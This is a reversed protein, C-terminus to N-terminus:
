VSERSSQFVKGFHNPPPRQLDAPGCVLVRNDNAEPQKPVAAGGVSPRQGCGTWTVCGTPM